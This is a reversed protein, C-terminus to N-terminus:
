GKASQAGPRGHLWEQRRALSMEEDLTRCELYVTDLPAPRTHAVCQRLRGDRFFHLRRPIGPAVADLQNQLTDSTCQEEDMAVLLDGPCLGAAQAAGDQLVFGLEAGALHVPRKWQADLSCRIGSGPIGGRDAPGCSARRRVEIGVTELLAEVPLASRSTVWGELESAIGSGAMRNVLDFFEGEPFPRSVAGYEQWLRGMVLDLNLSNRSTERLRLDLCLAALAGKGYYSIEFNPSTPQPHYYKIWADESSEALSQWAEGASRSLRTMEQGLERLYDSESILGSRCLALTDYYSTIGEFIWLDRTLIEREWCSGALAAPRIAQVLWSHFYEHSALGLFQAYREPKAPPLDERSCLLASSSRHELGGYGTQRGMCLFHYEGFPSEGWFEQHWSCVAALDRGLRQLDAGPHGALVLHHPLEGADFDVLALFGMLVPHDCFARYGSATFTGWSWPDGAVRSMATAVKWSGPGQIVMQHQAEEQGVVRLFVAPGNFFAFESDLYATRVSPDLAHLTYQIELPGAVPEVRWRDKFIKGVGAERGGSLARIGVIQRAPDRITYSGPVWAPLSIIQGEPDPEPIQLCIQFFHRHTDLTVSYLLTMRTRGGIPPLSGFHPIPLM